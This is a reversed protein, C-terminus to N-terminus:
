SKGEGVPKRPISNRREEETMLRPPGMGEEGMMGMTETGAVPRSSPETQATITSGSISEGMAQAVLSSTRAAFGDYLPLGEGGEMGEADRSAEARKAIIVDVGGADDDDDDPEVTNTPGATQSRPIGHTPNPPALAATPDSM